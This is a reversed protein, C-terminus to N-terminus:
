HEGNYNRIVDAALSPLEEMRPKLPKVKLCYTSTVMKLVKLITTDVGVYINTQRANLIFYKNFWGGMNRKM